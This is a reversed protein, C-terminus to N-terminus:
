ADRVPPLDQRKVIAQNFEINRRDNSEIAGNHNCVNMPWSRAKLGNGGNLIQFLQIRIIQKVSHQAFKLRSQVM